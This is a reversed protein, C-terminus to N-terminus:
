SKKGEKGMGHLFIDVFEDAQERLPGRSGNVFKHTMMMRALGIFLLAGRAPDGKRLWGAAMGGKVHEVLVATHRNFYAKQAAENRPGHLISSGPSFPSLFYHTEDIFDLGERVLRRFSALTGDPPAIKMVRRDLAALMDEFVSKLLDDKDRFYLYLTGKAIGAKRAVGDLSLDQYSSRILIDRAADMIRQRRVEVPETRPRSM